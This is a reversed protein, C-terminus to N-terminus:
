DEAEARLEELRQRALDGFETDKHKAVKRYNKVIQAFGKKYTSHSRDIGDDDLSNIMARIEAERTEAWRYLKRAEFEKRVKPNRFLKIKENGIERVKDKLDEDAFLSQRDALDSLWELLQYRAFPEDEASLEQLQEYRVRFVHRVPEKPLEFGLFAASVVWQWARAHIRDPTPDHGGPFIFVRAPQGMYKMALGIKPAHHKDHDGCALGVALNRIRRVWKHEKHYYSTREMFLGVFGPRLCVEVAAARGGGSGGTAFKCGDSIRLRKMADDHAALFNGFIPGWPGNRSEVLMVAVWRERRIWDRFQELEADGSPDSIFLCPYEVDANEPDNYGKPIYVKYHYTGPTVEMFDAPLKAGEVVECEILTEEDEPLEKDMPTAALLPASWAVLIAVCASIWFFSWRKKLAMEGLRESLPTGFECTGAAFAALLCSAAGKLM